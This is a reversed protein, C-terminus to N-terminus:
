PGGGARPRRSPLHGACWGARCPLRMSLCPTMLCLSLHQVMTCRLLQCLWACSRVGRGELLLCDTLLAAASAAWVSGIWGGSVDQLGAPWGVQTTGLEEMVAEENDSLEPEGDEGAAEGGEGAASAPRGRQPTGTASPPASAGAAGAAPQGNGEAQQGEAPPQGEQQPRQALETATPAAAMTSLDQQSRHKALIEQRRRRREEILRDEDDAQQAELAAAVRRQFEEEDQPSFSPSAPLTPLLLPIAATCAPWTPSSLFVFLSVAALRRASLLWWGCCCRSVEEEEHQKHHTRREESRSRKRGDRSRSRSRSRRRRDEFGVRRRDDFRGGPGSFRHSPPNPPYPRCHSTCRPITYFASSLCAHAPHCQAAAFMAGVVKLLM